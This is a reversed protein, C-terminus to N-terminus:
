NQSTQGLICTTSRESFAMSYLGLTKIEPHKWPKIMIAVVHCLASFITNYIIPGM